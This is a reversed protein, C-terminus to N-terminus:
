PRVAKIKPTCSEFRCFPKVRASISLFIHLLACPRAQHFVMLSIRRGKLSPKEFIQCTDDRNLTEDSCAKMGNRVHKRYDSWSAARWDLLRRTIPVVLMDRTADSFRFILAEGHIPDGLGQWRSEPLNGRHWLM